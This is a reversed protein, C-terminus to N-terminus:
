TGEELYFDPDHVLTLASALPFPLFRLVSPLKLRVVLFRSNSHYTGLTPIYTSRRQLYRPPAYIWDLVAYVIPQGYRPRRDADDGYQGGVSDGTPWRKIRGM